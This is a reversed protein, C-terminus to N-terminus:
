LLPFSLKLTAPNIKNVPVLRRNVDASWLFAGEYLLPKFSGQTHDFTFFSEHYFCSNAAILTCSFVPAHCQYSPRSFWLNLPCYFLFFGM